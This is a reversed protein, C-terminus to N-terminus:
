HKKRDSIKLPDDGQNARPQKFLSDLKSVEKYHHKLTPLLNSAFTKIDQDTSRSALSFLDIAKNHENLMLQLYYENRGENQYTDMKNILEM